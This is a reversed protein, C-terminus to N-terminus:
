EGGAKLDADILAMIYGQRSDSRADIASLSAPPLFVRVYRWGDTKRDKEWQAQTSIKKEM